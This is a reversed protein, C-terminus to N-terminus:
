DSVWDGLVCSKSVIFCELVVFTSYGLLVGFSSLPCFLLSCLKDNLALMDSIEAPSVAKQTLYSNMQIKGKFYTKKPPFTNEGM